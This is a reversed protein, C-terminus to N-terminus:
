KSSKWQLLPQVFAGWYGTIRLQTDKQCEATSCADAFLINNIQGLIDRYVEFIYGNDRRLGTSKRSILTHLPMGQKVGKAKIGKSLKCRKTIKPKVGKPQGTGPRQRAYVFNQACFLDRLSHSWKSSNCVSHTRRKTRVVHNKKKKTEKGKRLARRHEASLCWSAVGLRPAFIFLCM